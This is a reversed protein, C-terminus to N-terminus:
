PTQAFKVNRMDADVSLYVVTMQNEPLDPPGFVRTM